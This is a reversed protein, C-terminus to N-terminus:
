IMASVGTLMDDEPDTTAIYILISVPIISITYAIIKLLSSTLDRGMAKEICYDNYNLYLTVLVIILAMVAIGLDLKKAAGDSMYPKKGSLNKIDNKNFYMSALLVIIAVVIVINKIEINKIELKKYFDELNNM